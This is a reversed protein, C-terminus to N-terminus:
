ASSRPDSRMPWRSCSSVRDVAKDITLPQSFLVGTKFSSAATPTGFTALSAASVMPVLGLLLTTAMAMAIARGRVSGM